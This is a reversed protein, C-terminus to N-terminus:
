RDNKQITSIIKTHSIREYLLPKQMSIRFLSVVFWIFLLLICVIQLLLADQFLFRLVDPIYFYLYLAGYRILFQYWKADKSSADVIQM